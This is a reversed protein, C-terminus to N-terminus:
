DRLQSVRPLDFWKRALSWGISVLVGAVGVLTDVQSQTAIDAAMAAAGAAGLGHRVAASLTEYVKGAVKTKIFKMIM